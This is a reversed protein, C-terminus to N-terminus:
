SILSISITLEIISDTQFIAYASMCADPLRGVLQLKRSVLSVFKGCEVEPSDRLDDTVQIGTVLGILCEVLEPGRDM